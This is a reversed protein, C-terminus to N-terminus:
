KPTSTTAIPFVFIFERQWLFPLESCPKSPPSPLLHLLTCLSLCPLSPLEAMRLFFPGAYGSRDESVRLVEGGWVEGCLSAQGLGYGAEGILSGQLSKGESDTGIQFPVRTGPMPLWVSPSLKIRLFLFTVCSSRQPGRQKVYELVM